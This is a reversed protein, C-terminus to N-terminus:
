CSREFILRLSVQLPILPGQKVSECQQPLELGRPSVFSVSLENISPTAISVNGVVKWCAISNQRCIPIAYRRISEIHIKWSSKASQFVCAAEIRLTYAESRQLIAAILAWSLERPRRKLQLGIANEGNVINAGFCNQLYPL